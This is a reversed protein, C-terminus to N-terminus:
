FAGGESAMRLVRRALCDAFLNVTHLEHALTRERTIASKALEFAEHLLRAREQTGQGWPQRIIGLM